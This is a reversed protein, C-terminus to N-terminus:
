LSTRRWITVRSLNGYPPYAHLGGTIIEPVGDQDLDAAEAVILHTPTNALPVQTFREHGDNLWAMMSVTSPDEWKNVSAVALLDLYGDGNLDVSVPSYAGPYDSVRHFKFFGRGRNEFWQLGHWPRPGPKAYDFGDGNTYLLDLDGDRDLDEFRIGSSGYDENTSGWLIKDKFVGTGDNEFLHIEEWEQSVLAVFDLDGDGDVDAVPTHVTGSLGLLQHSEFEWGGKNELWRVEGQAYGFQGVVLDIDGDADFDAGRVDTVRAVNQILVHREFQQDGMNELIVVSGIKDNTPRIMGMSAVLLDLDGDKDIDCAEIHAPGKVNEALLKEEFVNVPSQRIWSVTDKVGDCVLIDLLGDQDLDQVALHPVWPRGEVPFGVPEAKFALSLSLQTLPAPAVSPTVAEPVTTTSRGIGSVIWLVVAFPLVVLVGLVAFVVVNAKSSPM